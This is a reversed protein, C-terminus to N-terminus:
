DIIMSAFTKLTRLSKTELGFGVAQNEDELGTTVLVKDELVVDNTKVHCGACVDKTVKAVPRGVAM